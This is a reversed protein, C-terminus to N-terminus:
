SGVVASYKVTLSFTQQFGFKRAQKQKGDGSDCDGHKLWHFKTAIILGVWMEEELGRQFWSSNEGNNVKM